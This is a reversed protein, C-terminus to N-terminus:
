IQSWQLSVRPGLSSQSGGGLSVTAAKMGSASLGRTVPVIWQETRSVWPSRPQVVVVEPRDQFIGPRTPSEGMRPAPNYRSLSTPEAPEVPTPSSFRSFREEAKITSPIRRPSGGLSAIRSTQLVIAVRHARSGLRRPLSPRTMPLTDN